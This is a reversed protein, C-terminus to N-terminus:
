YSLYANRLREINGKIYSANLRNKDLYTNALEFDNLPIVGGNPRQFNGGSPDDVISRIAHNFDSKGELQVIKSNYLKRTTLPFSVRFGAYKSGVDQVFFAVSTQDFFRKFEVTVGKDAYWYQGYTLESFLKLPEYFYRYSALYINKDDDLDSDKNQFTGLKLSVGHEGSITSLSTQNMAGYYNAEYQGLSLTNFLSEYQSTQHVMATALRSKVRDAYYVGYPKDENFNESNFLPVEYMASIVVGDYVPMYANARLTALYDFAGIESGISTIIGPSLEIRPKFMSSNKQATIFAVNADDFSRSFVLNDRLKKANTANPKKLYGMFDQSEGSLTITQINNKLLTVIYHKNEKYESAISGMVYGLADLDTHDFMNNEFKVYISKKYEGVQVNQFGFNVLKNQIALSVNGKESSTVINNEKVQKEETVISTDKNTTFDSKSQHYPVKTTNPFLPVTLNIAFHTQAETLNQALTADLKVSSLLNQPVAVRIGAHNEEGDHEAMVSFWDTVKAEVGGFLGDMRQGRKNDGGKGYGLSTRLFGFAKDAVIYNNVYNNAAGGFDQLGLAVRPLYKHSYPIQYKFNASLDRLEYDRSEVFRALLEFNPFVGMGVIYNEELASSASYDYSRLHNDSQNNFQFLADGEKIVQANPTNILGTFGQSSLSNSFNEAGLISSTLIFITSIRM